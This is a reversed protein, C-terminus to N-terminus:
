EQDFRDCFRTAVKARVEADNFGSYSDVAHEIRGVIRDNEISPVLRVNVFQQGTALVERRESLAFTKCTVWLTSLGHVVNDLTRV